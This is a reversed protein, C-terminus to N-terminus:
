TINPVKHPSFVSIIGSGPVYVIQTSCLDPPNQLPSKSSEKSSGGDVHQGTNIGVDPLELTIRAAVDGFFTFHLCTLTTLARHQSQALKLGYYM